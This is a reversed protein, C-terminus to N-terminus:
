LLCLYRNHLYLLFRFNLLLRRLEIRILVLLPRLLFFDRYIWHLIKILNAPNFFLRTYPPLILRSTRLYPPGKSRPYLLAPTYTLLPTRFPIYLTLRHFLNLLLPSQLFLRRLFNWPRHFLLNLWYLFYLFLLLNFFLALLKNFYGFDVCELFFNFSRDLLLTLIAFDFGIIM